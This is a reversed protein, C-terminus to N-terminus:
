RCPSHSHVAPDSQMDSQSRSGEEPASGSVQAAPRPLSMATLADRVALVVPRWAGPRPQRFLRASPYWPTTEGELGWRWDPVHNLLIWVPKGMAGAAHCVSTDVSIVLDLSGIASATDAFDQCGAELDVISFGCDQQEAAADGRQLSFLEVHSLSSLPGFDRLALSRHRNRSHQPSGSWVLGVRFRGASSASPIAGARDGGPPRLYPFGPYYPLGDGCYRPLSMLPCEYDCPPADEIRTVVTACPEISRCLRELRPPVQVVVHAGMEKLYVAYRIFQISDGFGQEAWALIRKHRLPQGKWPAAGPVAARGGTLAFRREYLDWGRLPEGRLFHISACGVSALAFGPELVLTREFSRLAGSLNGNGFCASGLNYHASAFDPKLQVARTYFHIAEEFRGEVLCVSGLGGYAEADPRGAM